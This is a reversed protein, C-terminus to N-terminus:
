IKQSHFYSALIKKIHKRGWGSKYFREREFADHKNLYAEYYILKLPGRDKTSDVKKSNHLKLRKKLDNTCGIYLEDDVSSKLIYLYQM